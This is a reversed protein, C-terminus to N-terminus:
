GKCGSFGLGGPGFRPMGNDLGSQPGRWALQKGSFARFLLFRVTKSFMAPWFFRVGGGGGPVVVMCLRDIQDRFGYIGSVRIWFGQMELNWVAFGESGEGSRGGGGGGLLEFGLDLLKLKAVVSGGSEVEFGRLSWLCFWALDLFSFPEAVM